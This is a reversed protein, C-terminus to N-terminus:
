YCKFTYGCDRCTCTNCPDGGCYNLTSMIVLHKCASSDQRIYIRPQYHLSSPPTDPGGVQAPEYSFDNTKVHQYKLAGLPAKCGLITWVIIAAAVIWFIWDYFVKKFIKGM